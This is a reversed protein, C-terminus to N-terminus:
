HYWSRFLRSDTKFIETGGELIECGSIAGFMGYHLTVSDRIRTREFRPIVYRFYLDLDADEQFRFDKMTDNLFNRMSGVNFVANDWPCIKRIETQFIRCIFEACQHARWSNCAVVGSNCIRGALGGSVAKRKRSSPLCSIIMDPTICELEGLAQPIFVDPITLHVNFCPDKEEEDEEEPTEPSIFIRSGVIMTRNRWIDPRTAEAVVKAASEQLSRVSGIGDKVSNYYRSYQFVVSSQSGRNVPPNYM